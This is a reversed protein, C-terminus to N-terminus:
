EEKKDTKKKKRTKPEEEKFYEEAMKKIAKLVCNSCGTKLRSDPSDPFLEKYIEDLENLSTSYLRRVYNGYKATKFQEEYKSMKEKLEKTM